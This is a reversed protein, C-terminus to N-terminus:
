PSFDVNQVIWDMNWTVDVYFSPLKLTCVKSSNDGKFSEKSDGYSVVGRLFWRDERGKIAFGGGSDGICARTELFSDALTL